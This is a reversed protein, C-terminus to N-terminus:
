IGNLRRKIEDLNKDIWVKPDKSAHLSVIFISTDFDYLYNFGKISRILVNEYISKGPVKPIKPKFLTKTKTTWNGALFIPLSPGHYSIPCAAFPEKLGIKSTASLKSYAEATM